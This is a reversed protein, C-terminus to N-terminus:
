PFTSRHPPVQGNINAQSHGYPDTVNKETHRQRPGQTLPRGLKEVLTDHEDKTIGAAFNISFDAM